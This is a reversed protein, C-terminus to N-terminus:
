APEIDITKTETAGPRPMNIIVRVDAKVQAAKSPVYLGSMELLMKAWHFNNPKDSLANEKAKLLVPLVSSQVLGVAEDQLQRVFHEKKFARYYTNTTIGVGDCIATVTMGVSEPTALFELLKEESTTLAIGKADIDALEESV